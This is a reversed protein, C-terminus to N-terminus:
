PLDRCVQLCRLFRSLPSLSGSSKLRMNTTKGKRGRLMIALAAEEFDGHIDEVHQESAEECHLHDQLENGEFGLYAESFYSNVPRPPCTDVPRPIHCFFPGTFPGERLLARFAVSALLHVLGVGQFVVKGQLKTWSQSISKEM